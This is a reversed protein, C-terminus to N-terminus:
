ICVFMCVSSHPGIGLSPVCVLLSLETIRKRIRHRLTQTVDVAQVRTTVSGIYSFAMSPRLTCIAGSLIGNPDLSGSFTYITYWGLLRGFMTCLKTSRRQAVTPATVFGLRSVRQFKSLTDWVRWGIDATLWGFNIMNHPCTSSINSNTRNDIYGKTVFIYGGVFQAITRLHRNKRLPQTTYKWAHM